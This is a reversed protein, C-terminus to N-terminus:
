LQLLFKLFKIQFSLLLLQTTRHQKAILLAHKSAGIRSIHTFLSYFPQFTRQKKSRIVNYILQSYKKPKILFQQKFLGFTHLACTQFNLHPFKCFFESM